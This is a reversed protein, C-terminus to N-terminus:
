QLESVLDMGEWKETFLSLMCNQSWVATVSKGQKTKVKFKKWDIMSEKTSRLLRLIEGRQFMGYYGVM